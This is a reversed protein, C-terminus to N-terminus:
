AATFTLGARRNPGQREGLFRWSKTQNSLVRRLALQRKGLAPERERVAGRGFCDLVGVFVDRGCLM